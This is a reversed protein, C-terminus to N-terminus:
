WLDESFLETKSYKLRRIQGCELAHKAALERDLFLGKDTVFGQEGGAISSVIVGNRLVANAHFIDAHRRGTYVRGDLRIAAASIVNKLIVAVLFDTARGYEAFRDPCILSQALRYIRKV